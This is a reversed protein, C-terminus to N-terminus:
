RVQVSLIQPDAGEEDEEMDDDVGFDDSLIAGRPSMNEAQVDFAMKEVSAGPNGLGVKRLCCTVGRFLLGGCGHFGDSGIRKLLRADKNVQRFFDEM